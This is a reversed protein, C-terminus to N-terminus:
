TGVTWCDRKDRHYHTRTSSVAWTEQSFSVMKNGIVCPVKIVRQILAPGTELLLLPELNSLRRIFPRSKWASVLYHEKKSAPSVSLCLCLCVFQLEQTEFSLDTARIAIKTFINQRLNALLLINPVWKWSFHALNFILKNKLLGNGEGWHHCTHPHAGRGGSMGRVVRHENWDSIVDPGQARRWRFCVFRLTLRHFSLRQKRSVPLLCDREKSYKEGSKGYLLSGFDGLAFIHHKRHNDDNSNESPGNKLLNNYTCIYKGLIYM